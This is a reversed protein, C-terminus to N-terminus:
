TITKKKFGERIYAAFMTGGLQGDWLKEVKTNKRQQNIYDLTGDNWIPFNTLDVPPPPNQVPVNNVTTLEQFSWIYLDIQDHEIQNTWNTLDLKDAARQNCNYTGAFVKLTNTLM